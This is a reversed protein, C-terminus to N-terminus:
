PRATVWAADGALRERFAVQRHHRVSLLYITGETADHLYLVLYSGVVLMRLTRREGLPAAELYARSSAPAQQLFPPGLVPFRRLNPIVQEELVALLDLYAGPAGAEEWFARITRLRDLFAPTLAVRIRGDTAQGDGM